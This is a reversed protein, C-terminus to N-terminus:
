HQQSRSLIGRSDIVRKYEIKSLEVQRFEDHDVLCVILDAQELSEDLDCLLMSKGRLSEPLEKLNPEVVLYKVGPMDIEALLESIQLAPSERVDDINAKYALGLLAVTRASLEAIEAKIRNVYYQPRRDNVERATRTIEAIQPAFDVLFWPDVAICHGGVGPGPQLINVRPHRNALRILEWVDVDAVDCISSIENALAINVDRFTNEALKALEATRCHTELVSGDVFERYFDAAVKTSEADVGGVIRDNSILEELIHGPLVREPCHAVHFDVGVLDQNNEVLTARVRETSGPPSTSELIVLTGERVMKAVSSTAAEVYDMNPVHGERFPTPVAIIFVDAPEIEVSARLFRSEIALQVAESLDPEVIHASGSNITDVVKQQVDIGLVKYGKSALVAATPLGIYGLGLVCVSRKDSM